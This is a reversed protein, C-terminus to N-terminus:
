ETLELGIEVVTLMMSISFEKGNLICAEMDVITLDHQLLVHFEILSALQMAAGRYDQYRETM